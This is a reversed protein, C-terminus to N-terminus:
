VTCSEWGEGWCGQQSLPFLPHTSFNPSTHHFLKHPLRPIPKQANTRTNAGECCWIPCLSPVSLHSLPIPIAYPGCRDVSRIGRSTDVRGTRSPGLGDIRRYPDFPTFHSRVPETWLPSNHELKESPALHYPVEVPDVYTGNRLSGNRRGGAEELTESVFCQAHIFGLIVSIITHPLVLVEFALHPHADPLYFSDRKM